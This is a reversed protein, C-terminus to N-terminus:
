SRSIPLLPFFRGQSSRNETASGPIKNESLVRSFSLTSFSLYFLSIHSFERKRTLSAFERHEKELPKREQRRTIPANRSSLGEKKGDHRVGIRCGARVWQEGGMMTGLFICGVALDSNIQCM